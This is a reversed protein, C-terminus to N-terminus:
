NQSTENKIWDLFESNGQEIKLAVICPCEYSHLRKLFTVLNELNEGVTKLILIHENDSKVTNEWWYISKSNGLVNACAALRKGVANRGLDVAETESSTTVYVFFHDM